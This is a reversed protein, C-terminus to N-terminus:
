AVGARLLDHVHLIGVPAGAADAVFLTTIQAENMIRLAEAALAEPSVTRPHRTMMGGATAALLAEGGARLGRRLDGDTIIGALRQDEVIGLCGFRRATMALLAEDM